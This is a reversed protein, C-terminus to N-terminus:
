VERNTPLTLHTYSVPVHTALSLILIIREEFDLSFKKITKAYPSIDNIIDPPTIEHINTYPTEHNWYLDIRCQIVNKLWILDASIASANLTSKKVDM